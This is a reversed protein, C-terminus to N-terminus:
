AGRQLLFLKRYHDRGSGFLHSYKAGRSEGHVRLHHKLINVTVMINATVRRRFRVHVDVTIM